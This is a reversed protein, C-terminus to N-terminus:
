CHTCSLIYPHIQSFGNHSRHIYSFAAPSLASLLFGSNQSGAIVFPRSYEREIGSKSLVTGQYGFIKDQLVYPFPPAPHCIRWSSGVDIRVKRCRTTFNMYISLASTSSPYSRLFIMSRASRPFKAALISNKIIISGSLSSRDSFITLYWHPQEGVAAQLIK